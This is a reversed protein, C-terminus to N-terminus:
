ADARIICRFGIHCTSTYIAEPSRAAPRYRFCYSPACLHSGGKVVKRPICINPQIPDFSADASTIRPNTPTCCPKGTEQPHRPVYWDSTWEWVNGTVDYLGYGNAPFVGVPSTGEYGDSRKNIWPFEGQWTNAMPRETPSDENGWAFVAGDLGGRAAFEWETESPLEKGAWRAYAEADEYAVQVVPHQEMGVIGKNPGRPHRWDAGPVYAWWRRPDDLSVRTKTKRFVLGGPVLLDLRVGPYRAPDPAREAVTKYDAAAVFAAFQANTVPSADMWFGSVHVRHVPREEPYFDNAGMAFRGGPVWVMGPMPAAGPAPSKSLYEARRDTLEMINFGDNHM